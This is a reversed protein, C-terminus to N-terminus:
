IYILVDDLRKIGNRAAYEDGEVEAKCIAQDDSDAYIAVIREEFLYKKDRSRMWDYLTRAGYWKM